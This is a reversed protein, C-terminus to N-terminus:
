KTLQNVYKNFNLYIYSIDESLQSQIKNKSLLLSNIILKFCIIPILLYIIYGISSGLIISIKQYDITKTENNYAIEIFSSLTLVTSVIWALFSSEVKIPQKSNYYDIALKLDNKTRFNYKSLISILNNLHEQKNHMAYINIKTVIKVEKKVKEKKIVKVFDIYFYSIVLIFVLGYLVYNRLVYFDKFIKSLVSTLIAIITVSFWYYKNFSREKSIKKYEKEINEFM